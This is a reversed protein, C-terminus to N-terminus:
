RGLLRIRTPPPPPPPPPPGAAMRGGSSMGAAPSLASTGGQRGGSGGLSSGMGPNGGGVPSLNATVQPRISLNPNAASLNTVRRDTAGVSGQPSQLTTPGVRGTLGTSTPQAAGDGRQTEGRQAPSISALQTLARPLENMAAPASGVASVRGVGLPQLALNGNPTSVVGSGAQVRSFSGSQEGAGTRQHISEGDGRSIQFTSLPTVIDVPKASIGTPTDINVVRINGQNLQLVTKDTGSGMRDMRVESGPRASLMAGDPLKVQALVGPPTILREGANLTDGQKAARQNGNADIVTLQGNAFLVQAGEQALSFLPFTALLTATALYPIRQKM